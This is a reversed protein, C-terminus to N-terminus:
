KRKGRIKNEPPFGMVGFSTVSLKDFPCAVSFPATLSDTVLVSTLISKVNFVSLQHSIVNVFKTQKTLTIESTTFLNFRFILSIKKAM